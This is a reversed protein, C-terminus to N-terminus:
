QADRLWVEHDLQLNEGNSQAITFTITVLANNTWNGLAYQFNANSLNGILVAGGSLGAGPAPQTTTVASTYRLVQGGSFCYSVPSGVVYVREGPSNRVSTFGSSLTLTRVHNSDATGMDTVPKMATNDYLESANVPYVAAYYGSGSPVSFDVVEITTSNATLSTYVTSAAVPLFQLCNSAIRVSQPTAERLDRAIRDLAIRAEAASDQRKATDLYGSVSGTIISTFTVATIGLLVIVVVLEILTFGRNGEGRGRRGSPSRHLRGHHAVYAYVRKRERRSLTLTLSTKEQVTGM